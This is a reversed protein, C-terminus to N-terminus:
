VGKVLTDVGLFPQSAGQRWQRLEASVAQDKRAVLLHTFAHSPDNSAWTGTNFYTAGGELAVQEPAHTHGFVIVPACMLSQVLRTATRLKNSPTQLRLRGLIAAAVGCVALVALPALVRHIGSLGWLLWSSSVLGVAVLALRDVCFLQLISWFRRSVPPRHLADLAVLKEEAFEFSRALSQLREHHVARREADAARMTYWTEVLKWVLMGYLYFLRVAGRVGNAWAWKMYDIAGWEEATHPNYDPLRNAFYRMGAHAVSLAIGSKKGGRRCAVPNLLYDVSCNEDYQHGHEIYCLDPEYFFWPCFSVRASFEERAASEAGAGVAFGCLWEVLTQQVRPYHFEPDHNGVIIVLQNGAAVFSALRAFVGQHRLMVQELKKQSHREDFGLGYLREEDDLDLGELGEASAPIQVSLFDVMDGNVVLTWPKDDLRNITHHELFAELAGELAVVHQLYSVKAVGPRLDEGLHLDSIVLINRDAAM